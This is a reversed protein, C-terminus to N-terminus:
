QRSELYWQATCALGEDVSLRPEWPITHRAKDINVQLSDLLRDAYHPYGILNAMARFSSPPLHFLHVRKQLAAALKTVLETTSLDNGDSAFFVENAATPATICSVILDLLNELAIMSRRNEIGGLPLPLRTCILRMLSEVNARVCPGYVVPPRLIVYEMGTEQCISKLGCEAEYKSLGYPDVPQPSNSERFPSGADTREGNVKVSSIFVFRRVGAAAAQRALNTTGLANANRYDSIETGRTDSLVHVRAATHVVVDVGELALAWNTDPALDGVLLQRMKLTEDKSFQRVSGLVEHQEDGLLRRMLAAGVFGNSGTVLTRM